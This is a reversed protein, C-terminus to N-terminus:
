TTRHSDIHPDNQRLWQAVLWVLLPYLTLGMTLLGIPLKVFMTQHTTLTTIFYGPMLKGAILTLIVVSIYITQTGILGAVLYVGRRTPRAARLSAALIIIWLISFATELWILNSPYLSGPGWGTTVLQHREILTAFALYTTFPLTMLTAYQWSDIALLTVIIPFTIVFLWSTSPVILVALFLWGLWAYWWTPWGRWWALGAGLGFLVLYISLPIHQGILTWGIGTIGLIPLAALLIDSWDVVGAARRWASGITRPLGFQQVAKAEAAPRPLGKAQFEQALADLHSYVEAEAEPQLHRPLSKKFEHLYEKIASM